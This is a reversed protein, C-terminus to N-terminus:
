AKTAAPISRAPLDKPLHNQQAELLDVYAAEILSSEDVKLARMLSRAESEAQAEDEAEELVVELELFDGLNEVSDIHIRTRGSVFLHRTKRVVARIGYASKLIRLTREPESTPVISYRSTKPGAVDPREYFILYGEEPSLIRLKLRGAPCPFFVDEQGDVQPPRDALLRARRICSERDHVRAKIEVNRGM